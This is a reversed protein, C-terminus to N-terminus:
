NYFYYDLKPRTQIKCSNMSEIYRICNKKPPPQMVSSSTTALVTPQLKCLPVLHQNELWNKVHSIRQVNFDTQTSKNTKRKLILNSITNVILTNLISDNNENTFLQALAGNCLRRVIERQQDM